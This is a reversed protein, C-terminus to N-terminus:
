RRRFAYGAVRALMAAPEAMAAACFNLQAAQGWLVQAAHKSQCYNSL